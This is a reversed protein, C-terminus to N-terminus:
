SNNYSMQVKQFALLHNQSANRLLTFITRVDRPINLKLFREYMEINEIEKQIAVELAENINVPEKIYEKSSDEPIVINYKTFLSKLYNIKNEKAMVINTFLRQEGIIQRTLLYNTRALFEDQIAYTLMKELILDSDEKAASAGYCANELITKEGLDLEESNLTESSLAERFLEEGKIEESKLEESKLEESKLEESRLEESQIRIQERYKEEADAVEKTIQVTGHPHQPPAYISFLKIPRDGKNMLNHWKGAPIIFAYGTSVTEQFDLYDKRSGMQILGNGEEIGIFQDLDPHIELGIEGGVPISMLTLQLYTGTWLATRFNNNLKAADEMNVVFPAPGYDKLPIKSISSSQMQAATYDTDSYTPESHYFDPTNFQLSNPYYPYQQKNYINNM